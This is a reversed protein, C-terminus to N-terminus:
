ARRREGGNEEGTQRAWMAAYRGGGALLAAHTGREVVRGRDLVMVEDAEVVSSLRHAIRITSRGASLHALQVEIAAETQSDLASTAEDLVLIRPDKLLVRAIGVRQKEGGSLKLGREGVRTDYGNPLSAIFEHLHAARAAAEIEAASAGERGYGINYGITDNFLVVDQPVIGIARHISEQTVERIDQGDVLIRGEGVDYFRFLLRVITSKGAGSAGVIGLTGGPPLDFSLGRLIPRAPDYGFGVAEFRLGGAGPALAPAGPRDAVAAPTDLLAFMEGMDVLSQRIERYVTGLFNLPATIQIMYANVMVFDGVTLTGAGVGAAALLMVGVLGATIVLTQVTNLLALSTTTRVAADEYGAMAEDYRAAERAEAAFYKVTEYNLLSDIARQNADTDRANMERRIRVRWETLRLTLSVYLAVTVLVVALFRWDFLAFFIAAVLALELILPAISFLLFRLLFAVAKVGREVVRSLGGTQRSLHYDLSLAHLHAFTRRALRRLARQAVRAFLVDRLQQFGTQALRGAGYALTLGGAGLALLRAGQDGEGSLTDVALKFLYPTAVAVLKALV